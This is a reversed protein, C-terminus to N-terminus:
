KLALQSFKVKYLIQLRETKTDTQLLSARNIYAEAQVPDEDELYLQAIKLYTELKYDVSYQRNLFILIKDSNSVECGTGKFSEGGYQTGSVRPRRKISYIHYAKWPPGRLLPLTLSHTALVQHILKPSPGCELIVKTWFSMHNSAHQMQLFALFQRALYLTYVVVKFLKLILTKSNPVVTKHRQPFSNFRIGQGRLLSASTLAFPTASISTSMCRIIHMKRCAYWIDLIFASAKRYFQRQGTELPIGTLVRAAERWQQCDEYM